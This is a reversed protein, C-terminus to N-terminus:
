SKKPATKNKLLAARSITKKCCTGGMTCKVPKKGKPNDSAFSYPGALFLGTAVVLLLKRM